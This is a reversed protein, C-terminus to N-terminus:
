GIVTYPAWFYPHRNAAIADRQAACLATSPPMAAHQLYQYFKTMIAAASADHVNWLSVVLSQAGASLFGRVLGIAEDGGQVQVRGSECASLVVLKARLSLRYLSRVDIWGDALKLASFYPNDSRFLSHTAIHLVDGNGAAQRLADVSAKDAVFLQATRFCASAAQIEAEAQPISPDRIAFGVLSAYGAPQTRSRRQLEVSASPAYSIPYTEVLYASGNWFAHFPARHLAGYPIVLLRQCDLHRHLPAWVLEYLKQLARQAGAMLREGHRVLYDDGIEARGLQFRLDALAKEVQRGDCLHRVLYVTRAGVVFAMWENGAQYYIVAQEDQRLAQQVIDLTAPEAEALWPAISWEIRQLTAETARIEDTINRDPSRSPPGHGLLQNYLWTLQRRTATLRAGAETPQANQALMAEDLTTQLRELLARSRAREIVAFADALMSASPAPADLLSLVLDAYMQTKDALFTTRFEEIPLTARQSEITAVARDFFHRARETDGATRAAQGSAHLVQLALHPYLSLAESGGGAADLWAAAQESWQRAAAGDDLAVAIRSRLLAEEIRTIWDGTSATRSTDAGATLLSDLIKAAGIADDMWLLGTAEAQHVCRLWYHNDLARFLAAAQTLWAAADAFAQNRLAILARYYLAQGLEYRQGSREFLAAARHLNAAAEPLLNLAIQVIAQDLFLVDAGEWREPVSDPDLTGLMDLTAANFESLADAFSGTRTLLHGLNSHARGRDYRVEPQDLLAIAEALATAAAVPKDLYSQAVAMDISVLGLRTRLEVAVEDNDAAALLASLGAQVAAFEEAAKAHEEQYSHLTATNIRADLYVLELEIDRDPIAALTNVAERIATQADAYRGQMALVQTLGLGSRALLLPNALAQWRMRAEQLAIEAAVFDGGDLALRARVYFIWPAVEDQMGTRDHLAAALDALQQAASPNGEVLSLAHSALMIASDPLLLSEETLLALAEAAPLAALQTAMQPTLEGPM